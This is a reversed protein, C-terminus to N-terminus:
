AAGADVLKRLLSEPNALLQDPTEFEVLRGKDLTMIRNADLITQLRHAIIIVTIEHGLTKRLNSQIITDTEDDVASTAEDLIVLKSRRLIARALAILQREGVSLNGGGRSIVMDLVADRQMALRGWISYLGVAELVDELSADDYQGFLDLNQRLTGSQRKNTRALNYGNLNTLASLVRKFAQRRVTQPIITVNSRLADLNITDTLLDDYYVSGETPILKLLALILSSKGSGTRGVVGICEGSKIHFSIDHLVNTGDQSYRASLNSVRLDGSAPWAAAPNGEVTSPPEHEIVLYSQVRELSCPEGRLCLVVVFSNCQVELDNLSRILTFLYSCFSLAMNLSFGTISSSARKRYVLYAALSSSFLAGLLDIRFGIWRNLDFAIRGVRSYADIRRELEEKYSEQAGYARISALGNLLENFQSVVPARANSLGRKVVLQAKMYINGLYVAVTGVLVGPLLFAPTYIVLAALKALVATTEAAFNRFALPVPGDIVGIDQTFRTTIRSTPTTDLWRFTASFVSHVLKEHIQRSSRVIGRNYLSAGLFAITMGMVAILSYITLYFLANVELGDKLDYQLGWLGLFWLQLTSVVQEAVIFSIWFAFFIVSYRGGLASLLLEVSNWSLHGQAVEENVVLKGRATSSARLSTGGEKVSNIAQTGPAERLPEISAVSGEVNRRTMSIDGNLNISVIADAVPGVLSVNHTALIVTRGVVLDGRLCENLVWASTQADLSALVDDLLLIQARSYVARALTIRAKQGGSIIMRRVYTEKSLTLGREGVETMDGAEFLDLDLNLSCQYVVKRYREEDYLSGFLINDRITRNEIWSEQTAYAVGGNRPLSFGGGKSLPTFYMEGLLALLMSTKGSGTPGTILTLGHEKFLLEGEIRLMFHRDSDEEPRDRNWSFAANYFGVKEEQKMSSVQGIHTGESEQVAMPIRWTIREAQTKLIAFVAMSSFIKSANLEAKIVVTYTMYTLITAITPVFATITSNALRLRMLKWLYELEEERKEEVRGIVKKEWGFMKLMRLVELAESVERVRADTKNMTAKQLSKMKGSFHQQIPVFLAIVVAGSIASWGLVRYLFTTAFMIQLPIQLFLALFDAGYAIHELDTTILNNIAGLRGKRKASANPGKEDDRPKDDAKMRVLLSREFVLHLCLAQICVHMRKYTYLMWHECVSQVVPGILLLAIWVWPRVDDSSKDAEGNELYRLTRQLAIPAAYSMVCISLHVFSLFYYLLGYFIHANKTTNRFPDLYPYSEERLYRSSDCDSLPPLDDPGLRGVTNGKLVIHDLYSYTLRSFWSATQEPNQSSLDNENGRSQYPRPIGFPILISNLCLLAIKLWLFTGEEIDKPSQGYTALPWLNRYAYVWFVSLYIFNQHRRATCAWSSPLLSFLSLMSAYVMIATTEVGPAPSCAFTLLVLVLSILFRVNM